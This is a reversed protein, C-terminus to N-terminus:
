GGTRGPPVMQVDAKMFARKEDLPRVRVGVLGRECTNTPPPIFDFLFSSSRLRCFPPGMSVM